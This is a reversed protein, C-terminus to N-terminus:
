PRAGGLFAAIDLADLWGDGNLDSAKLSSLGQRQLERLSIRRVPGNGRTTGLEGDAGPLPLSADAFASCCGTEGFMLFNLQVFSFDLIDVTGDSNVDANPGVTMCDTGGLPYTANFEGVFVGFDLIDIFADDNLNGGLLADGGTFDGVFQTGVVAFDDTDDRRLTHLTDRASVCVYDGCPVMVTATAVGGVFTLEDTVTTVSNCAATAFDFTICRTFPGPDVVGDFAVTVEFESFGDVTVLQDCTSFNGCDDTATWTITTTGVPFPDYLSLSPDDSRVFTVVSTCDDTVTPGVPGLSVNDWYTEYTDGYNVMQLFVWAFRSSGFILPDSLSAVVTGADRDIVKFEYTTATLEIEFTYWRDFDVIAALENWGPTFGNSPDFDTDQVFARFGPLGTGAVDGYAALIPFGSVIGAPDATEGWLSAHRETGNWDSPIWVDASIRASQPINVPYKRGQFDYFSSEFGPPRNAASDTVDVGHRLVNEGMFVANEFIAPLYRDEQWFDCPDVCLQLPEDFPDTFQLVAECTGADALVFIDPACTIEPATQDISIFGLDDFTADVELGAADTLRNPLIADTRFTILDSVFCVEDVPSFELQVLTSAAATGPDGGATGVAYDLTGAVADVVEFIELVFPNPTVLGGPTASVFQLVSTDWSLFFQGGAVIGPADGMDITVTLTTSPECAPSNLEVDAPAPGLLPTAIAPLGARAPVNPTARSTPQAPARVGGAPDVSAQGSATATTASAVLTAALALHQASGTLGSTRHTSM